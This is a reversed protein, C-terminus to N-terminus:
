TFKKLLIEKLEIYVGPKYRNFILGKIKKLRKNLKKTTSIVRSYETIM